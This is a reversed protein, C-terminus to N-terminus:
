APPDQFDAFGDPQPPGTYAFAAKVVPEAYYATMLHFRLALLFRRASESSAFAADAVSLRGSERLALFNAGSQAVAQKDLVEVGDAILPELEPIAMARTHLDLQSASPLEGGPIMLDAVAAMTRTVHEPAGPRWADPRWRSAVNRWLLAAGGFSVTLGLLTIAERRRMYGTETEAAARTPFPLTKPRLHLGTRHRAPHCRAHTLKHQIAIVRGISSACPRIMSDPCQSRINSHMEEKIFDDSADDREIQEEVAAALQPTAKDFSFDPVEIGIKQVPQQVPPSPNGVSVGRRDLVPDLDDDLYYHQNRAEKNRYEPPPVWVGSCGSIVRPPHHGMASM